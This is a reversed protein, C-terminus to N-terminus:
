GRVLLEESNAKWVLGFIHGHRKTSIGVKSGTDQPSGGRCPTHTHTHTHTHAHEKKGEWVQESRFQWPAALQEKGRKQTLLGYSLGPVSM